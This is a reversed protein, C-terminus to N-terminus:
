PNQMMRGKQKGAQMAKGQALVAWLLWGVLLLVTVQAQCLSNHKQLAVYPAVWATVNSASVCLFHAVGKHSVPYPLARTHSQTPCRGQTLSLLAVGKHSVLHLMTVLMLTPVILM